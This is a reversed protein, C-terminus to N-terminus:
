GRPSGWNQLSYHGRVMNIRGLHDFRRVLQPPQHAVHWLELFAPNSTTAV